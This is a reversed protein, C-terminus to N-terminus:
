RHKGLELVGTQCTPTAAPSPIQPGARLHLHALGASLAPARLGQQLVKPHRQCHFQRGLNAQRGLVPRSKLPPPLPPHRARGLGPTTEPPPTQSGPLQPSERSCQYSPPRRPVPAWARSLSIGPACPACQALPSCAHERSVMPAPDCHGPAGGQLHLEFTAAKSKTDEAVQRLHSAADRGEGGLGQCTARAVRGGPRATIQTQELGTTSESIWTHVPHPDMQGTCAVCQRTSTIPRLTLPKLNGLQAQVWTGGTDQALSMPCDPMRWYKFNQKSKEGGTADWM